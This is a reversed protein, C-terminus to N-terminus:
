PEPRERTEVIQIFWRTTELDTQLWPHMALTELAALHEVTARQAETLQVVADEPAASAQRSLMRYGLGAAMGALLVLAALRPRPAWTDGRPQRLASRVYALTRELAPAGEMEDASDLALLRTLSQEHALLEQCAACSRVHAEWRQADAASLRGKLFERAIDPQLHEMTVATLAGGVHSGGASSTM